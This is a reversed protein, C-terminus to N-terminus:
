RIRIAGGSGVTRVFVLQLTLSRQGYAVYGALTEGFGAHDGRGRRDRHAILYRTSDTVIMVNSSLASVRKQQKWPLM